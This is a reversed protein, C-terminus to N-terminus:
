IGNIIEFITTMLIGNSKQRQTRQGGKEGDRNSRNNRCIVSFMWILMGWHYVYRPFSLNTICQNVGSVNGECRRSIIVSLSQGIIVIPIEKRRCWLGAGKTRNETSKDQLVCGVVIPDNNTVIIKTIKLVFLTKVKDDIVPVSEEEEKEERLKGKERRLIRGNAVILSVNMGAM